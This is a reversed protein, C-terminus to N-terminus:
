QQLLELMRKKEDDSPLRRVTAIRSNVDKFALAAAASGSLEIEVTRLGCALEISPDGPKRQAAEDPWESDDIPCDINEIEGGDAALLTFFERHAEEAEDYVEEVTKRMENRLPDNAGVGGGGSGIFRFRLSDLLLSTGQLLEVIQSERKVSHFRVSIKVQQDPSRAAISDLEEYLFDQIQSHASQSLLGVAGILM